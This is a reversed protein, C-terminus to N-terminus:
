RGLGSIAIMEPSHGVRNSARNRGEDRGVNREDSVNLMRVVMSESRAASIAVQERFPRVQGETRHDESLRRCSRITVKPLQPIREGVDIRDLDAHVLSGPPRGIPWV